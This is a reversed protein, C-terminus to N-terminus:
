AAVARRVAEGDLQGLDKGDRVVKVLVGTYKSQIEGVSEHVSKWGSSATSVYSRVIAVIGQDDRTEDEASKVADIVNGLRNGLIGAANQINLLQIGAETASAHLCTFTSKFGTLFSLAKKADEKQNLLDRKEQLLKPIFVGGVSAGGAVTAVLLAAGVLAFPPVALGGIIVVISGVAALGFLGEAVYIGTLRTDISSIQRDLDKLFADDVLGSAKDLATQFNSSDGTVATQFKGVKTGAEAVNKSLRGLDNELATLLRLTQRRADDRDGNTWRDLQGMIADTFSMFEIAYGDVQAVARLLGPQVVDLYSQANSRATALYENVPPFGKKKLLDPVSIPPQTIVQRVYNQVV